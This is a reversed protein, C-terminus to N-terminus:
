RAARGSPSEIMRASEATQLSLCRRQQASVVEALSEPTLLNMM